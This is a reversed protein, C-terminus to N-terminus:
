RGCNSVNLGGSWYTHSEGDVTIDFVNETSIYIKEKIDFTKKFKNRKINRLKKLKEQKYKQLFGIKREFKLSDSTINLDYSQKCNYVGNCFEVEKSKNTTYYSGIGISSLMMQVDEIIQFSSAKLTIRGYDELVCGNASFLGKLFAVVTDKGAFKYKDPIKRDYTKPIDEYTLDTKVEWAIPTSHLGPRHKIFLNKIESDFYDNDNEGVCLHILNNSSGHVSGDGILLGDMIAQIDYCSTEANFQINDITEAKDVEIKKGYSKIRHNETGYFSGSTTSYKFVSKIGNDIKNIVKVWGDESWIEDGININNFTSIGKKTLVTAWGPQCPNCSIPKLSDHIYTGFTNKQVTDIYFLGPDGCIWAAEAIQSLVDKAKVRYYEKFTGGNEVWKDYDGDWCKDYLDRYNEFDPFYFIWDDDNKVATIFSDPVKLSINMSSIDPISNTFVDKAFVKEPAAKCWIFDLADPHRLDLTCIMAARRGNTGVVRGVESFSPMFSVAGSSTKAANNVKTNKPRLITIDFGSGGRYKFTNALNKQANFIGDMSDEEIKTLYCNSFSVTAEPNNCASLISGAPIFKGSKLLEKQKDDTINCYNIVGKIVDERNDHGYKNLCVMKIFDNHERLSKELLDKTIKETL